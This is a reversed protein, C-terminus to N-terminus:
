IKFGGTNLRAHKVLDNSFEVPNNARVEKITIQNTTYNNNNTNNSTNGTKLKLIESASVGLRGHTMGKDNFHKALAVAGIGTAGFGAIAGGLGTSVVASAFKFIGVIWSLTKGLTRLAYVGTMIAGAWKIIKKQGSGLQDWWTVVEKIKNIVFQLGKAVLTTLKSLYPLIQVKLKFMQDNFAQIQKADDNTVFKMKMREKLLQNLSKEGGIFLQQTQANFGMQQLLAVKQSKTMTDTIRAVNVLTKSLNMTGDINEDIINSSNIGYQEFVKALTGTSNRADNLNRIVTPLSRALKSNSVGQIGAFYDMVQKDQLSIGLSGASKAMEDISKRMNNFGMIAGTIGFGAVLGRFVNKPILNTLSKNVQKAKTNTKQLDKDVKNFGKSKIDFFLEALTAKSAM